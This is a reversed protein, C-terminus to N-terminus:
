ELLKVKTKLPHSENKAGPVKNKDTTSEKTKNTRTKIRCIGKSKNRWSVMGGIQELKYSRSGAFSVPRGSNSAIFEIDLYAVSQNLTNDFEEVFFIEHRGVQGVQFNELSVEVLNRKFEKGKDDAGHILRLRINSIEIERWPGGELDEVLSDTEFEDLIDNQFFVDIALLRFISVPLKDHKLRNVIADSPDISQGTTAGTLLLPMSFSCVLLVNKFM